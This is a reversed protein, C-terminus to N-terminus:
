FGTNCTTPMKNGCILSSARDFYCWIKEQKQRSPPLQKTFNHFYILAVQSPLLTITAAQSCCSKFTKNTELPFWLSRDSISGSLCKNRSTHGLWCWLRRHSSPPWREDRWHLIWALIHVCIHDLGHPLIGLEVEPSVSFFHNIIYYTSM